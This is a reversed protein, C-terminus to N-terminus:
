EKIIKTDFSNPSIQTTSLVWGGIGFEGNQSKKFFNMKRLWIVPKEQNM